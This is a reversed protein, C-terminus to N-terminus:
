VYSTLRPCVNEFWSKNPDGVNGKSQFRSRPGSASACSEPASLMEAVTPRFRRRPKSRRAASTGLIREVVVTGTGALPLILRSAVNRKYMLSAVVPM